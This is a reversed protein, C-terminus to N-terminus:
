CKVDLITGQFSKARGSARYNAGVSTSSRSIQRGIVVLTTKNELTDVIDLIDNVWQFMRNEIEKRM